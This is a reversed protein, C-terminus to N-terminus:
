QQSQRAAAEERAQVAELRSALEALGAEDESFVSRVPLDIDTAPRICGLKSAINHIVPQGRDNLEPEGLEWRRGSRVMAYLKHM